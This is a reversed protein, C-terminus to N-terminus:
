PGGAPLAPLLQGRVPPRQAPGAGPRVPALRGLVASAASTDVSNITAHAYPSRLIAMSLMGPLQMDDIYNGRGRIFRDDEKRKVSHGIGRIEETAQAM